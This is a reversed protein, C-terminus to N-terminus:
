AVEGMRVTLPQMNPAIMIPKKVEGVLGTSDTM